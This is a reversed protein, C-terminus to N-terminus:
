SGDVGTVLPVSVIAPIKPSSGPQNKSTPSHFRDGRSRLTPQCCFSRIITRYGVVIAAGTSAIRASRAIARKPPTTTTTPRM